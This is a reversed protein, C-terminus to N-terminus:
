RRITKTKARQRMREATAGLAAATQWTCTTLEIAGVSPPLATPGAAIVGLEAPVGSVMLVAPVDSGTESKSM